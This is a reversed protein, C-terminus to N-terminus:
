LSSAYTIRIRATCCFLATGYSASDMAGRLQKCRAGAVVKARTGLKSCCVRREHYSYFQQALLLTRVAARIFIGTKQPMVGQQSSHCGWHRRTKFPHLDISKVFHPFGIIVRKVDTQGDIRNGAHFLETGVPHIKMFTSIQTNKSSRYVIHRTHMTTIQSTHM